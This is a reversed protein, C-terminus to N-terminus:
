PAFTCTDDFRAADDDFRCPAGDGKPIVYVDLGEGGDNASLVTAPTVDGLGLVVSCAELSLAAALALM